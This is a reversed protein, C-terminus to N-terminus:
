LETIGTGGSVPSVAAGIISALASGSSTIVNATSARNSLVVAVIALGMIATFIAMLGKGLDSM